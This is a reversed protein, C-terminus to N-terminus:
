EFQDDHRQIRRCNEIGYDKATALTDEFWLVVDNDTRFRMDQTMPILTPTEACGIPVDAPPTTCCGSVGITLAAVM